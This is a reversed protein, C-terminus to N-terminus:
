KKKNRLIVSNIRKGRKRFEDAIQYARPAQCTLATIGVLDVDEDFNIGEVCDETLRVDIGKPTLGAVTPLTLAPLFLKKFKAPNGDYDLYTPQILRIKM